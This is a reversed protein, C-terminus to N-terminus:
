KRRTKYSLIHLTIGISLLFLAIQLWLYETVVFFITVLMTTWLLTLAYIKIKLPISKDQLFNKIYTGFRKHNLLWFYLKESSRAFCFVALLLFPTTPLLPLFIGAIGLGLSLMGAFILIYRIFKNKSKLIKEM